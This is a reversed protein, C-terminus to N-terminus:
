SAIVSRTWTGSTRLQASISIPDASSAELPLEYSEITAEGTYRISGISSDPVNIQLTRIPSGAGDRFIWEELLERAETMATSYVAGFSITGSIKCSTVIDWEGEFTVLSGLTRQLSFTTANASGSINTLVGAANDARVVIDCANAYTSTQAM